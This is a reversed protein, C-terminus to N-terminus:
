SAALERFKEVAGGVVAAGHGFVAVGFPLGALKAVSSRATGAIVPV